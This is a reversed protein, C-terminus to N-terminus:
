VLPLSILCLSQFLKISITSLLDVCHLVVANKGYMIPTFIDFEFEIDFVSFNLSVESISGLLSYVILLQERVSVVFWDTCWTRYCVKIM